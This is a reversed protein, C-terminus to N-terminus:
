VDGFAAALQLAAVGARSAAGGAAADDACAALTQPKELCTPWQTVFTLNDACGVTWATHCAESSIITFVGTLQDGGGNAPWLTTCVNNSVITINTMMNVGHSANSGNGDVTALAQFNSGIM